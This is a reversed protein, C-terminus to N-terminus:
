KAPSSACRGRVFLNHSVVIRKSSRHTGHDADIAYCLARQTVDLDGRTTPADRIDRRWGQMWQNGGGPLIM